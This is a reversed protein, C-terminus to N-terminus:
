PTPPPEYILRYFRKLGAKPVQIEVNWADASVPIPLSGTWPGAPSSSWKLTFSGKTVVRNVLLRVTNGQIGGLALKLRSAPDVPNLGLHMEVVNSLGDGDPDADKMAVAGALPYGSIWLGFFDTSLFTATLKKPSSRSVLVNDITFDSSIAGNRIFFSDYSPWGASNATAMSDGVAAGITYSSAAARYISFVLRITQGEISALAPGTQTTALIAYGGTGPSNDGGTTDRMLAFGTTGGTGLRMSFAQDRASSTTFGAILGAAEASPAEHYRIDASFSLTDGIELVAPTGWSALLGRSNTTTGDIRLAHEGGLGGGGSDDVVDMNQSGGLLSWTFDNVAAEPPLPTTRNSVSMLTFNAGAIGPSAPDVVATSSSSAPDAAGGMWHQFVEGAAPSVTIPATQGRRFAGTGSTSGASVPNSVVQLGSLIPGMPRPTLSV